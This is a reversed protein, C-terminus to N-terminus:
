CGNKWMRIYKTLEEAYYSDNIGMPSSRKNQEVMGNYVKKAMYKRISIILGNSAKEVNNQPRLCVDLYTSDLITKLKDWSTNPKSLVNIHEVLAIAHKNTIKAKKQKVPKTKTQPKPSENLLKEKLFENVAAEAEQPTKNDILVLNAHMVVVEESYKERLVVYPDKDIENLLFVNQARQIEDPSNIGQQLMKNKIDTLNDKYKESLYKKEEVTLARFPSLRNKTILENDIKRGIKSLYLAQADPYISLNKIITEQCSNNCQGKNKVVTVLSKRLNTFSQKLRNSPNNNIKPRKGANFCENCRKGESKANFCCDYCIESMQYMLEDPKTKLDYKNLFTQFFQSANKNVNQKTLKTPDIYYINEIEKEQCNILVPKSKNLTIDRSIVEKDESSLCFDLRQMLGAANHNVLYNRQPSRPYNPYCTKHIYIDGVKSYGLHEYNIEFTKTECM